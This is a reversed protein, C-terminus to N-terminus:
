QHDKGQRLLTRGSVRLRQSSCTVVVANQERLHHSSTAKELGNKYQGAKLRSKKAGVEEWTEGFCFNNFKNKGYKSLIITIKFM